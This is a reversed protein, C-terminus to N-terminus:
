YDERLHLRSPWQTRMKNDSSEEFNDPPMGTTILEELRGTVGAAYDRADEIQVKSYTKYQPV